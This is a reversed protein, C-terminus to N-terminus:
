GARPEIALLTPYPEDFLLYIRGRVAEIVKARVPLRLSGTYRGTALEFRDVVEQIADEYGGFHVYLLGESLALSCASCANYETMAAFPGQPTQTLRIEPFETHEVYRGAHPRREVGRFPFWGNGFSFGFAWDDGDVALYGQRAIPHLGYIAEDGLPIRREVDGGEQLVTFASDTLLVFRGDPLPVLQESHGVATLPIRRAVQGSANLHVVRNNRPDLVYVGGEGDAKLDRVGRFEDPGAGERGFTWELRGTGADLALVRRAGGDYVFLREEAGSLLFPRLLLSDQVGGYAWLTDWQQVVIERREPDYSAAPIADASGGSRDCAGALPVLAVLAVVPLLKRNGLSHM